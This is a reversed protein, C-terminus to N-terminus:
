LPMGGSKTQAAVSQGDQAFDTASDPSKSSDCRHLPLKSVSHSVRYSLGAKAPREGGDARRAYTQAGAALREASAPLRGSDRNAGRSLPNNPNAPDVSQLDLNEPPHRMQESMWVRVDQAYWVWEGGDKKGYPLRSRDRTLLTRITSVPKRLVISLDPVYLRHFPSLQEIRIENVSTNAEPM